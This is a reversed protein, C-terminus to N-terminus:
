KFANVLRVTCSFVSNVSREAFVGGLKISKFPEQTEYDYCVMLRLHRIGKQYANRSEQPYRRSTHPIETKITYKKTRDLYVSGHSRFSLMMLSIAYSIKNHVLTDRKVSAAPANGLKVARFGYATPRATGSKYAPRAAM